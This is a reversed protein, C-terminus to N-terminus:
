SHQEIIISILRVEITPIEKRLLLRQMEKSENLVHPQAQMAENVELFKKTSIESTLLVRQIDQLLEASHHSPAMRNRHIAWHCGSCLTILNSQKHTGGKSIPVIHHAHLKTSGIPGGRRGCNQCKYDDRQYIRSRRTGWDSPYGEGSM